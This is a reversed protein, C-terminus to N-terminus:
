HIFEVEKFAYRRTKNGEDLLCLKGNKDIDTLTAYFKGNNDQYRSKVGYKYLRSVYELNIMKSKENISQKYWNNLKEFLEILLVNLDFTELTELRLSTPNPLLRSFITQNVNLGIGVISNTIKVGRIINEILVGAIKKNGVYIDNPWKIKVDNLYDSLFDAIGLSITKSLSFQNEADLHQPFLLISILLNMGSESEWVNNMQGRGHLQEHSFVVTGEKLEKSKQLDSLFSNTSDITDLTILTDGIM